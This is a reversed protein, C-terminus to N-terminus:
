TATSRCAYAGRLEEVDLEFVAVPVEIGLAEAVLPHLEGLVGGAAEASRGPHLYPRSSRAVSSTSIFRRYLTEVM